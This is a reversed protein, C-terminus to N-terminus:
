LSEEEFPSNENNSSQSTAWQFPIQDLLPFKQPVERHEQHHCNLCVALTNELYHADDSDLFYRVLIIHHVHVAKKRKCRECRRNARAMAAAQVERWKPGYFQNYDGFIPRKGKHRKRRFKDVPAPPTKPQPIPEPIPLGVPRKPYYNGWENPPQITGLVSLNSKRFDFKDGNLHKVHKRFETVGAIFRGMYSQPLDGLCVIKNSDGPYTRYTWEKVGARPLDEADILVYVGYPQEPRCVVSLYVTKRDESYSYDGTIGLARRAEDLTKTYWDKDASEKQKRAEDEHFKKTDEELLKWWTEAPMGVLKAIRQNIEERNKAKQEAIVRQKEEQLVIEEASLPKPQIPVPPPLPPCVIERVPERIERFTVPLGMAILALQRRTPKRYRITSSPLTV